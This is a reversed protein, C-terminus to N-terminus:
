ESPDELREEGALRSTSPTPVRMVHRALVAAVVLLLIVAIGVPTRLMMVLAGLYPVSAAVRGIVETKRIRDLDPSPNSDGKTQFSEDDVDFVRHTVLLNGGLRFTIIDKVRVLAPDPVPADLILDGARLAPYMSGSDVVFARYGSVALWAAGAVSVILLVALARTLLRRNLVDNRSTRAHAPEGGM